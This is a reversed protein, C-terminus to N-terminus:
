AWVRLVLWRASVVVAEAGMGSVWVEPRPATLGYGCRRVIKCIAIAVCVSVFDAIRLRLLYRLVIEISSIPLAM